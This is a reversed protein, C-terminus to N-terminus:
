ACVFFPSFTTDTTRELKITLGREDSSERDDPLHKMLQEHLFSCKSWQDKLRHSLEMVEGAHCFDKLVGDVRSCIKTM